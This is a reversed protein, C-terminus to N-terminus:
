VRMVGPNEEEGRESRKFINEWNHRSASKKAGLAQFSILLVHTKAPSKKQIRLKDVQWRSVKVFNAIFKRNINEYVNNLIVWIIGKRMIPMKSCQFAYGM